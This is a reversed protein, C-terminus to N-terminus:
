VMLITKVIRNYSPSLPTGLSFWRKIGSGLVKACASTPIQVWVAGSLCRATLPLAKNWLVMPAPEWLFNFFSGQYQSCKHGPGSSTVSTKNYQKLWFWFKWSWFWIVFYTVYRNCIVLRVPKKGMGILECGPTVRLTSGLAIVLDAKKAHDTAAGLVDSELSDGFHMITDRLFGYCGQLFLSLWHFM